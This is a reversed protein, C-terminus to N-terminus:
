PVSLRVSPCEVTTHRKACLICVAYYFSKLLLCQGYLDTRHQLVYTRTKMNRNYSTVLRFPKLMDCIRTKNPIRNIITLTSSYCNNQINTSIRFLHFLLKLHEQDMFLNYAWVKLETVTSCRTRFFHITTLRARFTTLTIRFWVLM